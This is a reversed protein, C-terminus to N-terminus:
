RRFPAFNRASEDVRCKTLINRWRSGRRHTQLTERVAIRRAVRRLITAHRDCCTLIKAGLPRRSNDGRYIAFPCRNESFRAFSRLLNMTMFRTRCITASEESNFYILPPLSPLPHNVPLSARTAPVFFSDRPSADGQPTPPLGPGLTGKM